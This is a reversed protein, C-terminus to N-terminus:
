VEFDPATLEIVTPTVSLVKSGYNEKNKLIELNLKKVELDVQQGLMANRQQILSQLRATTTNILTHYDRKAYQTTEIFGNEEGDEPPMPMGGIVPTQQTKAKLELEYEQEKELKVLRYLRVRYLNIENDLSDLESQNVVANEEETLFKSYISGPTKHNQSGKRPGTSKGGHLRCKGNPMAPNKCRCGSRTKANCQKAKSNLM